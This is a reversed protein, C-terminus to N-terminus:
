RLEPLKGDLKRYLQLEYLGKYPLRIVNAEFNSIVIYIFNNQLNVRVMSALYEMLFKLAFSIVNPERCM